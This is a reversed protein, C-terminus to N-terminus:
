GKQRRLILKIEKADAVAIRYHRAVPMLYDAFLLLIGIGLLVQRMLRGSGTDFFGVRLPNAWMFIAVALIVFVIVNAATRLALLLRVKKILEPTTVLIEPELRKVAQKLEAANTVKM